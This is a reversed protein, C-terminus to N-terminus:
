TIEYKNIIDFNLELGIGPTEPIRFCGDIIQPREQYIVDWWPMYEVILGNPVAAIVHASFDHFCHSAVPLTWAEAMAAVKMWETIGGCRVLDVIVVDVARKEILRRFGYRTSFTEGAAVPVDLARAVEALADTDELSIGGGHLGVPDEFWYPSYCELDRGLRIAESVTFSWHAEVLLEVNEGIVERVARVRAVQEKLTKAKGGGLKMKMARFGQDVLSAAEKQIEDLTSFERLVDSAYAPVEDRFGGLLRSLPLGVQKARLIWFATDIASIANIGYGGWQGTHRLAVHLDKWTEAYRFIDQGIVVDELDDISAKLSNVQFDDLAYAIGFAELGDDTKLEVIVPNAKGLVGPKGFVERVPMPISLAYTKMKTVKM